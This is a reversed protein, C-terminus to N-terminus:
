SSGELATMVNITTPMMADIAGPTYGSFSKFDRILHNQDYYGTEYTIDLWSLKPNKEKLLYAGAFRTLRAFLKPSVGLRENCRREFQRLSINAHYALYEIPINGNQAVLLDIASDFGNFEKLRNLKGLFFADIINKIECNNGAEKLRMEVERIETNWLLSADIDANTIEHLPIGTLRHLSGAKFTIVIVHRKIGLDVIDNRLRAGMILNRPIAYSNDEGPIKVLVPEESIQFFMHGRTSWPYCYTQNLASQTFDFNMVVVSELLQQLAPHVPLFIFPQM